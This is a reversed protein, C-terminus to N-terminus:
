LANFRAVEVKYVAIYCCLVKVGGEKIAGALDLVQSIVGHLKHIVIELIYCFQIKINQGKLGM